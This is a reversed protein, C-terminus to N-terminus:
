PRLRSQDKTVRRVLEGFYIGEFIPQPLYRRLAMLLAARRGVIYRLRPRRAALATRVTCAVDLPTTPASAVVRDTLRETAKFWQFNPSAPNLAGSAIRRNSGWIETRVIAPEILTVQIGLAAVELSLAEGFGELAHKSACYASLAMSGLLGGISSVILIRGECRARMTPLVARVMTMTGFLNVDFVSRIEEETLDEFYGRIQTGANNVLGYIGGYQHILSRVLAQASAADCIDLAEVHISLKRRAAEEDLAQRRTLDRMTACVTYGQAALYLATELGIGSSAGTVLV